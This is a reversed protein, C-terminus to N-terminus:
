LPMCVRRLGRSGGSLRYSSISEGVTGSHDEIKYVRQDLDTVREELRAIAQDRTRMYTYNIDATGGAFKQFETRDSTQRDARADMRDLLKESETMYKNISQYSSRLELRVGEIKGDLREISQDLREVNGDLREVSQDLKKDLREIGQDLREVSQDLKKDLREFSQDLREVNRDFKDELRHFEKMMSDHGADLKADLRAELNTIAALFDERLTM